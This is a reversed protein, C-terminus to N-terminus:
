RLKVYHQSKSQLKAIEEDKHRVLENLKSIDTQFENIRSRYDERAENFKKNFVAQINQLQSKYEQTLQNSKLLELELRVLQDNLIKIKNECELQYENVIKKFFAKNEILQNNLHSRFLTDIKEETETNDLSAQRQM